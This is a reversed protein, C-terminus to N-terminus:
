PCVSAPLSGLTLTETTGNWYEVKAAQVSINTMTTVISLHKIARTGRWLFFKGYSDRTATFDIKRCGNQYTKFFINGAGGKYVDFNSALALGLVRLPAGSLNQMPITVHGQSLVSDVRLYYDPVPSASSQDLMIWEAFYSHSADLSEVVRLSPKIIVPSLSGVQITLGALVSTRAGAHAALGLPLLGIAVGAIAGTIRCVWSQYAKM